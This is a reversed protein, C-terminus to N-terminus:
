LRTPLWGLPPLIQEVLALHDYYGRQSAILGAQATFVSVGAVHFPRALWGQGLLRPSQGRVIWTIAGQEETLMIESTPTYSIAPMTRFRQRFWDTIEARGHRPRKMGADFLEADDTYLAVIETVDHANFAAIWREVLLRLVPQQDKGQM